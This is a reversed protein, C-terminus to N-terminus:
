RREPAFVSADDVDHALVRRRAAEKVGVAEDRLRDNNAPDSAVKLVQTTGDREVLLAVATSGRGLRAKM